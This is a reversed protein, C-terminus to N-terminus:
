CNVTDVTAASSTLVLLLLMWAIRLTAMASVTVQRAGRGM